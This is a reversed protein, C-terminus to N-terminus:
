ETPVASIFDDITIGTNRFLKQLGARTERVDRVIRLVDSSKEAKGFEAEYHDMAAFDDEPMEQAMAAELALCQFVELITPSRNLASGMYYDLSYGNGYENQTLTVRWHTATKKWDDSKIKLPSRVKELWMSFNLTEKDTQYSAQLMPTDFTFRNM